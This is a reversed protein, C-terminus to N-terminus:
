RRREANLYENPIVAFLDDDDQGPYRGLNAYFRGHGTSLTLSWYPKGEANENEWVGGIEIRRGRPSQAYLRFKPAKENTSQVPVGTVDIDFALTAVNGSLSNGDIRIANTVPATNTTIISM